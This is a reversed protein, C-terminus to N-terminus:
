TRARVREVMATAEAANDRIRSWEGAAIADAPAIWSGGVAAVLLLVYPLEDIGQRDLFLANRAPKLLYLSALVLGYALTIPAVRRLEDRGVDLRAVLWQWVRVM